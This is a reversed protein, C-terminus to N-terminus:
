RKICYDIKGGTEELPLIVLRSGGVSSGESSNGPQDLIKAISPTISFESGSFSIDDLHVPQVRETKGLVVPAEIQVVDM